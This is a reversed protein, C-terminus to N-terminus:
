EWRIINDTRSDMMWLDIPLVYHRILSRLRILEKLDNKNEVILVIGARKETQFAYNLSQGIAEGWKKKFDVEIAHTKTVIDCRTRDSMTVETEGGLQKAAIAQYYAQNKATQTSTITTRATYSSSSESSPNTYKPATYNSSSSGSNHYHYVGTKRNHHGGKSDTVGSHAHLKGVLLLGSILFASIGITTKASM